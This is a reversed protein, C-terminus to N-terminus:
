GIGFGFTLEYREPTEIPEYREADTNYRYWYRENAYSSGYLWNPIVAEIVVLHYSCEWIDGENREVIEQAREFSDCIVPTREGGFRASPAITTVTYLRPAEPYEGATRQVHKTDLPRCAKVMELFEKEQDTREKMRRLEENEKLLRDREAILSDVRENCFRIATVAEEPTSVKM